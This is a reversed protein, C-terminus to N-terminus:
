HIQIFTGYVSTTSSGQNLSLIFDGNVDAESFCNWLKQFSSQKLLLILTSFSKNPMETFAFIRMQTGFLMEKNKEYKQFVFRKERKESTQLIRKLTRSFIFGEIQSFVSDPFVSDPFM